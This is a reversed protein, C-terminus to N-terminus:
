YPVASGGVKRLIARHVICGTSGENYVWFGGKDHCSIFSPEARAIQAWVLRIM